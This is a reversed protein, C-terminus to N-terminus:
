ARLREPERVRVDRRSDSRREIKPALIMPIDRDVGSGPMPDLELDAPAELAAEEALAQSGGPDSENSARSESRSSTRSEWNPALDPHAARHPSEYKIQALCWRLRRHLTSEYRRLRRLEPDEDTTLDALALERNVEDLDAVLERREKLAAIERRAVSAPGEPPGILRGEQDILAGPEHGERFEIPTGMLDFALRSQELSWAGKRDAVYALMAWRKMLWDCGQPTRRLAEAVEEPRKGIQAGLTAAQAIRDDDWTLEARLSIKDRVRREIRECRDIRLSILAVENVLWGHFQNQPKLTYYYASSREQIAEVSEPVVIASCLGHKLANARSREKGEPTKPGTSKLANRRNAERRADSVIM